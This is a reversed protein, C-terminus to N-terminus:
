GALRFLYPWAWYGSFTKKVLRKNGHTVQRQENSVVAQEHTVKMRSRRQNKFAERYKENLCAYIVPNCLSNFLPLRRFVEAIIM